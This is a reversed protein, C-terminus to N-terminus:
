CCNVKDSVRPRMYLQDSLTLTGTLVYGITPQYGYSGESWILTTNAVKLNNPVAVIQGKSRATGNLTRSWGVTAKGNSDIDVASVTLKLESNSYPTMVAASAKLIDSIDSSTLTASQSAVDAATRVTLTLKRDISVAQSVEVGGLYLLLMLPLLLAFEVAAVGRRDALLNAARQSVRALCAIRAICTMLMAHSDNM